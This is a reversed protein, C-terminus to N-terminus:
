HTEAQAQEALAEPSMWFFDPPNGMFRIRNTRQGWNWDAPGFLMEEYYPTPSYPEIEQHKPAISIKGASIMATMGNVLAQYEDSFRALNQEHIRTPTYLHLGMVLHTWFDRIDRAIAHGFIVSKEHLDRMAGNLTHKRLYAELEENDM